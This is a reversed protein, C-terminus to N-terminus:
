PTSSCFLNLTGLGLLDSGRPSREHFLTEPPSVAPLALAGRRGLWALSLWPVGLPPRVLVLDAVAPSLSTVELVVDRMIGLQWHLANRHGIASHGVRGCALGCLSLHFQM